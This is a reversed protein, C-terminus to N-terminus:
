PTATKGWVLIATPSAASMDVAFTTAEAIKLAHDPGFDITFIGGADPVSLPGLYITTVGTGQASGFTITLDTVSQAFVQIKRIYHSKGTEAARLDEAGSFDASYASVFWEDGELPTKAFVAVNATIAM